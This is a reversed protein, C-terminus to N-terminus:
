QLSFTLGAELGLLKQSTAFQSNDSLKMSGLGGKWYAGAYIGINDTFYFKVRAKAAVNWMLGTVPEGINFNAGFGLYVPIQLRNGSLFTSGAYYYLSAMKLPDFSAPDWSEIHNEGVKVDDLQGMMYSAEWMHTLGGLITEYFVTGGVLPRYINEYMSNSSSKSSSKINIQTTNMFNGGVGLNRVQANVATAMMLSLLVFFFKNKM